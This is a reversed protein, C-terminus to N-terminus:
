MAGDYCVFEDWRVASADSEAITAGPAGVPYARPLRSGPLQSDRYLVIFPEYGVATAHCPFSAFCLKPSHTGLRLTQSQPSRPSPRSVLLHCVRSPGK